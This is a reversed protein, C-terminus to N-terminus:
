AKGAANDAKSERSGGWEIALGVALEEPRPVGANQIQAWCQGEGPPCNVAGGWLCGNPPNTPTGFGSFLCGKPVWGFCGFCTPLPRWVAGVMAAWNCWGHSDFLALWPEGKAFAVHM